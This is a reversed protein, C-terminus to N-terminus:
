TVAVPGHREVKDPISSFCEGDFARSFSVYNIEKGFDQYNKRKCEIM